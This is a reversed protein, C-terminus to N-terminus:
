GSIYVAYERSHNNTIFRVLYCDDDIDFVVYWTTNSNAKYRCYYAGYRNNKTPKSRQKPITSIFDYIKNVYEESSELFGFYEEDYFLTIYDDIHLRVSNLIKVKEM